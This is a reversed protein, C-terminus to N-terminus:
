IVFVIVLLCSASDDRADCGPKQVHGFVVVDYSMARNVYSYSRRRVNIERYGVIMPLTQVHGFVVLIDYSPAIM